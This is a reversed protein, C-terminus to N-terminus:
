RKLRNREVEWVVLDTGGLSPKLEYVRKGDTLRLGGDLDLSVEVIESQTRRQPKSEQFTTRGGSNEKRVEIVRQKSEVEFVYVHPLVDKLKADVQDTIVVKDVAPSFTSEFGSEPFNVGDGRPLLRDQVAAEVGRHLLAQYHKGSLKLQGVEKFEAGLVKRASADFLRLFSDGPKIRETSVKNLFFRGSQDRVADSWTLKSAELAAHEHYYGFFLGNGTEILALAGYKDKHQSVWLQRMEGAANGLLPTEPNFPSYLVGTTSPEKKTLRSPVPLATSGHGAHKNWWESPTLGVLNSANAVVFTREGFPIVLEVAAAPLSIWNMNAFLYGEPVSVFGAGPSPNKALDEFTAGSELDDRSLENLQTRGNSVVARRFLEDFEEFDLLLRSPADNMELKEARSKPNDRLRVDFGRGSKAVIVNEFIKGNRSLIREYTREGEKLSEPAPASEVASDDPDGLTVSQDDPRSVSIEPNPKPSFSPGAHPSAVDQPRSRLFAAAKAPDYQYRAQVETSVEGLPLTAGGTDHMIELEAPTNAIVTVNRYVTGRHELIEFDMTQPDFPRPAPEAPKTERSEDFAALFDPAPVFVELGYQLEAENLLPRLTHSDDTNSYLQEVLQDVRILNEPTNDVVMLYNRDRLVAAARYPFEVGQAELFYRAPGRDLSKGSLKVEDAGREYASLLKTQMQLTLVYSRRTLSNADAPSATAAQTALLCAFLAAPARLLSSSYAVM